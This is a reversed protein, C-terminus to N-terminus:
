VEVIITSLHELEGNGKNVVFRFHVGELPLCVPEGLARFAPGSVPQCRVQDFFRELTSFGVFVLQGSFQLTHSEVEIFSKDDYAPYAMGYQPTSFDNAPETSFLVSQLVMNKYLAQAIEDWDDYAEADRWGIRIRDMFPTLASLAERFNLMLDHVTITLSESGAM